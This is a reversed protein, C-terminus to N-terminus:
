VKPARAKIEKWSMEEEKDGPIKIVQGIQLKRPNLHENLDELVGKELKM